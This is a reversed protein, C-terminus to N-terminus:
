AGGCHPARLARRALAGGGESGDELVTEVEEYLAETAKVYTDLERQVGKRHEHFREEERRLQEELQTRENAGQEKLVGLTLRLKDMEAADKITPAESGICLAHVEDETAEATRQAEDLQAVSWERYDERMRALQEVRAKLHKCEREREALEEQITRQEDMVDQAAVEEAQVAECMASTSARAGARLEEFDQAALADSPESLDVRIILDKGDVGAETPADRELAEVAGNVQRVLREIAEARRSEQMNLEWVDQEAKEGDAKVDKLVQRLHQREWKLREIDQKSYAQSDVQETLKAAQAQLDEVEKQRLGDEAECRGTEEEARQVRMEASQLAVRLREAEVELQAPAKQLEVLHEREARFEQLRQEMGEHHDRLRDIEGRLASIREEYIQRLREEDSKDDRGSLYQLYNEHLTRLLHHDGDDREPNEPDHLGLQCACIPEVYEDNIRVLVCLWDLVALLQPWTNPGSIAQLKSRNVEVPYRLRRMISPVEDEM